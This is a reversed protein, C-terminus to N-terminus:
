ASAQSGRRRPRPTPAISEARSREAARGARSSLAARVRALDEPDDVESWWLGTIAVAEIKLTEALEDVVSLYWRDLAEPERVASDLARTFREAGAALFLMLGISECTVSEPPLTKGIARLRGGSVEVKMDDADYESKENVALTMPAHASELLRELVRTEFVTDGNLLIFEDRMWRQALWCSVLNDARAYFPNHLTTVEIDPVPESAVFSEVEDLGFGTVVTAEDVGCEALARLQVGLLTEDDRVTLLCKPRKETLPLLRSGRGASLIVARM